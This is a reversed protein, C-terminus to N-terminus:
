IMYYEDNLLYILVMLSNTVLLLMHKVRAMRNRIVDFARM